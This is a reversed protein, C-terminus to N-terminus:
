QSNDSTVAKFKNNFGEQWNESKSFSSSVNRAPRDLSIHTYIISVIVAVTTVVTVFNLAIILFIKGCPCHVYDEIIVKMGLCGHYLGVGLFLIMVIANFPAHLYDIFQDASISARIALTVFWIVLPILAVATLRQMIWHHTGNKASGLGKVKGLPSRLDM